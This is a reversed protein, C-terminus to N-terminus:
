ESHLPGSGANTARSNAVVGEDLRRGLDRDHREVDVCPGGRWGEVLAKPAISVLTMPENPESATARPASVTVATNRM